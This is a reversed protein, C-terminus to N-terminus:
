TSSTPLDTAESSSGLSPKAGDPPLLRTLIDALGQQAKLLEPLIARHFFDVNVEVVAGLLRVFEAGDLDAVEDATLGSGIRALDVMADEHAALAEMIRGTLLEAMVESTAARQFAALHRVKLPLIKVVRGGVNVVRATPCLADLDAASM